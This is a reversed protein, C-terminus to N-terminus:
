ARGEIDLLRAKKDLGGAYGTLSGDAGIVRHCPVIISVPNHGVAGGVAQASMRPVGKQQAIASAIEGYTMTRGFPITLLIEWVAKRFPTGRLSLEPTFDPDRGSFYTDLWRCTEDFVPLEKLEAHLPLPVAFHEQGDFWLGTLAKGDSGLTIGGLPSDYHWIYDM